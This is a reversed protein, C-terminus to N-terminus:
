LMGARRAVAYIDAKRRDSGDRPTGNDLVDQRQQYPKHTGCPGGAASWARV